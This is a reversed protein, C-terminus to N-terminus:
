SLSRLRELCGALEKRYAAEKKFHQDLKSLALKHPSGIRQTRHSVGLGMKDIIGHIHRRREKAMPWVMQRIAKDRLFKSLDKCDKCQCPLEDAISLDDKDRKM